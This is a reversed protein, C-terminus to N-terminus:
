SGSLSKWGIVFKVLTGFITETLGLNGAFSKLANTSSSLALVSFYEYPDDPEHEILWRAPSANKSAVSVLTM